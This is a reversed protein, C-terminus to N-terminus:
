NGKGYELHGRGEIFKNKGIIHDCFVKPYCFIKFGKERLKKLYPLDYEKKNYFEYNLSSFAKKSILMCGPSCIIVEFLKDSYLEYFNLPRFLENGEKLSKELEEETIGSKELFEYYEKTDTEKSISKIANPIEVNKGERVEARLYIGSIVDKNWKLLEKLIDKPPITDADMFLIYDFNHFKAYNIIIQKSSCVRNYNKEETTNDYLVNIDEIKKLKNYFIKDRSNDVFLISYEPYDISKVAGLFKDFCYEMGNYIPVAILIKIM